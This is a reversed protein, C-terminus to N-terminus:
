FKPKDKQPNIENNKKLAGDEKLDEILRTLVRTYEKISEKAVAMWHEQGCALRGAILQVIEDKNIDVNLKNGYVEFLANKIIEQKGSGGEIATLFGELEEKSPEIRKVPINEEILTILEHSTLANLEVRRYYEKKENSKSAKEKEKKAQTEEKKPVFFGKEEETLRLTEHILKSYSQSYGVIEAYKEEKGMNTIQKVTLGVEIVDLPEQFTKSGQQLIRMINYGPIDCDHLVYVEIGNSCFFHILKKGARTGFGQTSMIGIGLRKVLGSKELIDRFGSKEIFLVRNYLFAPHLDLQISVESSGLM